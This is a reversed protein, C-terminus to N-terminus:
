VFSTALLIRSDLDFVSRPNLDSIPIVIFSDEMLHPSPRRM